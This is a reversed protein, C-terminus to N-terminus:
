AVYRKFGQPHYEQWYNSTRESLKLCLSGLERQRSESLERLKIIDLGIKMVSNSIDEATEPKRGLEQLFKFFFMDEPVIDMGDKRIRTKAREAYQYLVKGARIIAQYEPNEKITLNEIHNIIGSTAYSFIDGLKYHRLNFEQPCSSFLSEFAQRAEKTM